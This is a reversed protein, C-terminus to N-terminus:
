YSLEGPARSLRRAAEPAPQPLAFEAQYRSGKAIARLSPIFSNPDLSGDGLIDVESSKLVRFGKLRENLKDIYRIQKWLDDVPVGRAVKLSQSHDTIGLYEYGKEKAAAAMQEISHSGDSSTSHAHLEGRVDKVTVLVPLTGEAARQVKDHGERLEPEIFSLGFKGYFGEETPFPGKTKLSKMSGTVGTLRRLLRLNFGHRLSTVEGSLLFAGLMGPTDAINHLVTRVVAETTYM